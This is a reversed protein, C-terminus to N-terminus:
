YILVWVFRRFSLFGVKWSTSFSFGDIGWFCTNSLIHTNGFITPKGGLDDMKITHKGNYVMWKPTRNKSVGGRDEVKM